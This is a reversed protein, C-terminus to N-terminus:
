KDALKWRKLQPFYEMMQKQAEEKTIGCAKVVFPISFDIMEEMTCEQAFEGNPYCYHCYDDNITGDCNHGHDNPTDLPMGCSQCFKREMMDYEGKNITEMM